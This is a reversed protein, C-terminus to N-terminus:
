TIYFSHQKLNQYLKEQQNKQMNKQKVPMWSATHKQILFSLLKIQEYSDNLCPIYHYNKGGAKLFIEKNEQAIEELTELCDASFGPCLVFLKQDKHAIKEITKDTYPQLWADKGFRSQFCVLYDKKQLKLKEAVLRSTKHCQCHYPDGQLLYKLPTGHYSFLLKGKGIKAKQISKALAAIYLPEDHYSHLFHLHPIWRCKQFYNSVADFVSASTTGSYQPYLPLILLSKCNQNRLFDLAKFISPEGYSMGLVFVYDSSFYKKLKEVINQCHLLLPSGKKTWISRYKQASKKPHFVLIITHLIFFWFIKSVEIVRADSLFQRLYKRLASTSPQKPTGLNVVLIGIKEAQQHSFNEQSLYKPM